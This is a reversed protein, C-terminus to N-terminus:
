RDLLDRWRQVWREHTAAPLLAAAVWAVAERHVDLWLHLPRQRLTEAITMAPAPTGVGGTIRRIRLLHLPSAILLPRTAGVETLLTQAARWNTVTDFSARDSAVRESPVGRRVLEAEMLEAGTETRGARRGGVCLIIDVLQADYLRAAHAVRELSDPGLGSGSGGRPGAFDDFFLVAAAHPEAPLPPPLTHATFVLVGAVFALDAVILLAALQLWRRARRPRPTARANSPSIAAADADSPESPM